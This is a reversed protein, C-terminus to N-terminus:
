VHERKMERQFETQANAITVFEKFLSKLRENNYLESDKRLVDEADTVAKLDGTWDDLNVFGRIFVLFQNRYYYCASKIQYFLLAQYLELVRKKLEVYVNGLPEGHNIDRMLLSDALSSYWEM